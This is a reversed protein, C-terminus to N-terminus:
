TGVKKHLPVNMSLLVPKPTPYCKGGLCSREWLRPEGLRPLHYFHIQQKSGMGLTTYSCM